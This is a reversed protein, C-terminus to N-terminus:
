KFKGRTIAETKLISLYENIKSEENTAVLISSLFDIRKKYFTEEKDFKWGIKEADTTFLVSIRNAIKPTTQLYNTLIEVTESYIEKNTLNRLRTKGIDKYESKSKKYKIDTNTIEEYIKPTDELTKQLKKFDENNTIDETIKSAAVEKIQNVVDFAQKKELQEILYELLEKYETEDM